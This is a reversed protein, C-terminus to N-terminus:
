IRIVGRGGIIDISSLARAFRVRDPDISEGNGQYFEKVRGMFRNRARMRSADILMRGAWRYVNREKVIARLTRMRDRQESVPMTLATALAYACLEADYPNVVLAEALERSAGAFMSLILVGQEDERAAVFEKAVLNMGDHLSTVMCLDAARMHAFVDLPDHHSEVLIIPYYGPRGFRSNIEEVVLRLDDAFRHYATINSRSPAAIQIFVFEGIWQPFLELFREVARFREILGKTYDLRDVGIGIKVNNKLGYKLKITRRCEAGDSVDAMREPPWEISIPYPRVETVEGRYSISDVERDVRSELYRDCSEMFNNCHFQTHFGIISSGLLGELIEQRWPCIGFSEANPWPIHWFTIITARPLRERILRPVMSFHYDQVLIVPDETKSDKIAAEAFKKNVAVYQAWDSQRFIPRTHAIHCLPWIGENALGYYYGHEEEATLWVRHIDYQPRGPPVAIRDQDDVVEGDATGNGHAIWVGSCAKLIPELATVLGSAPSQVEIKDGSRNHIYPQRNSLVLIEDESLKETLISRLAQADWEGVPGIAGTNASELDRVLGKLDKLIPLFDRNENISEPRGQTNRVGGVLQRVSKVWSARSWRAVLITIASTVLGMFLFLLFLYFKTDESRRSAFSLDHLLLVRIRRGTDGPSSSNVNAYTNVPKDDIVTEFTAVHVDGNPLHYTNGAVLQSNGLGSCGLQSPFLDTQILIEGSDECLAIALLREDQTVKTLIKKIKLRSSPTSDALLVSLPEDLVNSILRARIDLDRTFWKTILRDVFPAAAVLICGLVLALPLLFRLLFKM